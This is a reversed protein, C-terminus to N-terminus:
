FNWHGKRCYEHVEDDTAWGGWSEVSNIISSAELVASDSAEDEVTGHDVFQTWSRELYVRAAILAFRFLRPGNRLERTMAELESSAFAMWRLFDVIGEDDRASGLVRMFVHVNAPSPLHLLLPLLMSSSQGAKASLTSKSSLIIETDEPSTNQTLDLSVLNKFMRKLRSLGQKTFIVWADEALGQDAMRDYLQKGARTRLKHQRCMKEFKACLIHFTSFDIAVEADEMEVVISFLSAWCDVDQNLNSGHTTQSLRLNKGAVASLLVNWPATYPPKIVLVLQLAHSMAPQQKRLLEPTANLGINRPIRAHHYRILLGIFATFVPRAIILNEPDIEELGQLQKIHDLQLSSAGLFRFGEDINIANDFMVGLMRGNPKIGKDIMSWAFASFSPPPTRTYTMERPNTSSSELELMDGSAPSSDQDQLRDNSTVARELDIKRREEFAIKELMAGYVNPYVDAEEQYSLFCAWAEEITRTAKIRAEWIFSLLPPSQIGRGAELRIGVGPSFITRKQITPSQDTDWGSLIGAADEWPGSSYGAEGLNRLARNARSIELGESKRVSIGLKDERWPPWAKSKLFAWNRESLTKRHALQVSIIARYGEQNVTLAPQFETMKRIINFQAREQHAISIFPYASTPRALLQLLRNFLFTLRSIFDVSLNDSSQSRIGSDSTVHSTLMEVISPIAPPWYRNALRLLRIVMIIITEMSMVPFKAEQYTASPSATPDRTPVISSQNNLAMAISQWEPNFRNELRDWGHVVLLKIAWLSARPRRLVLLFVFTPVAAQSLSQPQNSAVLLRSAALASNPATIIWAWTVVDEIDYGRESLLTLSEENFVQLISEDLESRLGTLQDQSSAPHCLRIYNALISQLTIESPIDHADEFYSSYRKRDGLYRRRELKHAAVYSHDVSRESSGLIGPTAKVHGTERLASILTSSPARSRFKPVLKTRRRRVKHAEVEADEGVKEFGDAASSVSEPEPRRLIQCGKQIQPESDKQVIDRRAVQSSDPASVTFKPALRARVRRVKYTQPKVHQGADKCQTVRNSTGAPTTSVQRHDHPRRPLCLTHQYPRAKCTLGTKTSYSLKKTQSVLDSRCQSLARFDTFSLFSRSLLYM